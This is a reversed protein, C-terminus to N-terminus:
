GLGLPLRALDTSKVASEKRSRVVDLIRPATAAGTSM